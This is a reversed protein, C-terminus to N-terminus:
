ACRVFVSETWWITGPGANGDVLDFQSIETWKGYRLSYAETVQTGSPCQLATIRKGELEPQMAYLNWGKNNLQLPNSKPKSVFVGELECGDNQSVAVVLGENEEVQIQEGPPSPELKDKESNYKYTVWRPANNIVCQAAERTLSDIVDPNVPYLADLSPTLKETLQSKVITGGYIRHTFAKETLLKPPGTIQKVPLNVTTKKSTTKGTTTKTTTKKPTTKTIKKKPTTKAIKTIKTDTKPTVTAVTKTGTFTITLSPDVQGAKVQGNLDTGIAINNNINLDEFASVAIIILFYKTDTALGISKPNFSFSVLGDTLTKTEEPGYLINGDKDLIGFGYTIKGADALLGAVETITFTIEVTSDITATRPYDINQVAIDYSTPQEPVSVDSVVGLTFSDSYQINDGTDEDTLQNGSEDLPTLQVAIFYDGAPLVPTEVNGSFTHQQGTNLLTTRGETGVVKSGYADALVIDLHFVAPDAHNLIIIDFIVIQRDPIYEVNTVAQIEGDYSSVSVIPEPCYLRITEDQGDITSTADGCPTSWYVTEGEEGSVTVTCSSSGPGCYSPGGTEDSIDATCMGPSYRASCSGKDSSCTERGQGKDFYCTITESLGTEPCSITTSTGDSCVSITCGDDDTTEDCTVLVECDEPCGTETEDADCTGDGCYSPEECDDPCYQDEYPSCYGDGCCDAPCPDTAYKEDDTCTGDGCSDAQGCDEPCNSQTEDHECHGDGCWPDDDHDPGEDCDGVEECDDYFGDDGHHEDEGAHITAGTIKSFFEGNLAIGLVILSITVYVIVDSKEM